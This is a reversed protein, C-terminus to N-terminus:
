KAGEVKIQEIKVKNNSDTIAVNAWIASCIVSILVLAPVWIAALKVAHKNEM